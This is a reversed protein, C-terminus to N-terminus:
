ADGQPAHRHQGSPVGAKRRSTRISGNKLYETIEKQNDNFVALLGSALAVVQQETLGTGMTEDIAHIVEHLLTDRETDLPLGNMMAIRQRHTECMGIADEAVEDVWLIEFTKGLIRLSKM